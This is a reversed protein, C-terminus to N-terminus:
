ASPDSQKGLSYFTPTSLSISSPDQSTSSTDLMQFHNVEKPGYDLSTGVHSPFYPPYVLVQPMTTSPLPVVNLNHLDERGMSPLTFNSPELRYFSNYINPNTFLSTHNLRPFLNISSANEGEEQKDEDEVSEMSIEKAKGMLTTDLNWFNPKAIGLSDDWTAVNNTVKLKDFEISQSSASPQDRTFTQQHYDLGFSGPPVQLPPLEDIEHKAVNLLWDVAKSPQNLGLRDQLDYLQIATPVSLRIRRDRLGKITFVKSHRDKGGSARSVRAIRPDKLRSWSTLPSPITSSEPNKSDFTNAEQKTNLNEERLNPLM